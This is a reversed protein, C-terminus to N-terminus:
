VLPTVLLFHPSVSKEQYFTIFDLKLIILLFFFCTGSSNYGSPVGRVQVIEAEINRTLVRRLWQRHSTTTEFLCRVHWWMTKSRSQDVWKHRIPTKALWIVWGVLWATLWDAMVLMVQRSFKDYTLPHICFYLLFLLSVFQRRNLVSFYSNYLNFSPSYATDHKHNLTNKELISKKIQM